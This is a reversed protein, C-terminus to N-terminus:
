SIRKIMLCIDSIVEKDHLNSLFEFNALVHIDLYKIEPKIGMNNM